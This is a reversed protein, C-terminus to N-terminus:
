RPLAEIACTGGSMTVKVGPTARAVLVGGYPISVIVCNSAPDNALANVLDAQGACGGLLLTLFLLKWM